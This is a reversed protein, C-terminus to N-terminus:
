IEAKRKSMEGRAALNQEEKEGDKLSGRTKKDTKVRKGEM